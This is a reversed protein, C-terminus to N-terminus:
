NDNALSQLSGRRIATPGGYVPCLTTTVSKGWPRCYYTANSNLGCMSYIAEPLHSSTSLFFRGSQLTLYVVLYQDQAQTEKMAVVEENNRKGRVYLISSSWRPRPIIFENVGCGCSWISLLKKLLHLSKQLLCRNTRYKWIQALYPNAGRSHGKLQAWEKFSQKGALWTVPRCSQSDASLSPTSRRKALNKCMHHIQEKDPLTQLVKIRRTLGALSTKNWIATSKIFRWSFVEQINVVTRTSVKTM